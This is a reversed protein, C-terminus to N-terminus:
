YSPTAAEMAYDWDEIIEGLPDFVDFLQQLRSKSAGSGSGYVAIMGPPCPNSADVSGGAPVIGTAVCGLGGGFWVGALLLGAPDYFNVPDGWVYSYRNWSQPNSPVAPAADPTLFRGGSPGYCRQDAYNFGTNSDRYYTGFKDRDNATVTFEAGYPDYKLGGSVM